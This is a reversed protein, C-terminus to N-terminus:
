EKRFHTDSLGRSASRRKFAGPCRTSSHPRFRTRRLAPESLLLPQQRTRSHLTEGSHRCFLRSVHCRVARGSLHYLHGTHARHFEPPLGRLRDLCSTQLEVPLSAVTNGAQDVITFQSASDPGSTMLFARARLGSEYGVQNVRIFSSQANALTAFACFATLILKM